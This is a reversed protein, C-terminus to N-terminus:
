RSRVPVESTRYGSEAPRIGPAMRPPRNQRLWFGLALVGVFIMLVILKGAVSSPQESDGVRSDKM